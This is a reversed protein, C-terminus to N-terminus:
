GILGVQHKLVSSLATSICPCTPVFLPLHTKLTLNGEGFSINPEDHSSAHNLLM